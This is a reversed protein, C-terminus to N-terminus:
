LNPNLSEVNLHRLVLDYGSWDHFQYYLYGNQYAKLYQLKTFVDEGFRNLLGALRKYSNECESGLENMFLEVCAYNLEDRARKEYMISEMVVTAIMEMLPSTFKEIMSVPVHHLLHDLERAQKLLTLCERDTDLVLFTPTHQRM